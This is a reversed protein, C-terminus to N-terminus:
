TLRIREKPIYTNDTIYNDKKTIKADEPIDMLDDDRCYLKNKDVTKVCKYRNDDIIHPYQSAVTSGVTLRYYKIGDILVEKWSRTSFPLVYVGDRPLFKPMNAKIGKQRLAFFSSFAHFSKNIIQSMVDSPIKPNTYYRYIIRGIYNQDSKLRAKVPIDEFIEHMKILGKYKTPKIGFLYENNKVQEIFEKDRITCKKHNIIENKTMCYSKNYFSIVISRVIDNFLEKRVSIDCGPPFQLVNKKILSKIIERYYNKCNNNTLWIEQLYQKIHDYIIDNNSKIFPKLMVYRKYYHDYMQYFAADFQSAKTIFGYTILRYLDRFIKNSYRYFLQTHFVCTNYINKAEHAMFRLINIYKYDFQTWYSFTRTITGNSGTKYIM